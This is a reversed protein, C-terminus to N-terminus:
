EKPRSIPIPEYDSIDMKRKTREYEEEINYETETQSKIVRDWRDYKGGQFTAIGFTSGVVFFLMPVGAIAPNQKVKRKFAQLM